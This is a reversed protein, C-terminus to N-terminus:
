RFYESDNIKDVTDNELIMIIMMMIQMIKTAMVILKMTIVIVLKM